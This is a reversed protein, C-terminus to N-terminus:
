ATVGPADLIQVAGIRWGMDTQEMKYDLNHIGGKADTIQVKQWMADGRQRLELYRVEAPRWVMPYGETVMRQFNQPSQFMQQLTPTAYTFATDFDDAKFAELQSSITGEIESSQAMAGFSSALVLAMAGLLRMIGTQM